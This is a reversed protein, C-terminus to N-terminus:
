RGAKREIIRSKQTIVLSNSPIDEIVVANAGIECNDGITIKGIIKAGPYITVNDGITPVNNIDRYDNGITVQHFIRVDKGIHAQPSVIIGNLGHPLLPPTKFFAGQGLDIGM